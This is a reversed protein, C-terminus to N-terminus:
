RGGAWTPGGRLTWKIRGRQLFGHGGVRDADKADCTAKTRLCKEQTSVEYTM